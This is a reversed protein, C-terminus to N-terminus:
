FETPELTVLNTLEHVNKAVFKATFTAWINPSKKPKKFFM